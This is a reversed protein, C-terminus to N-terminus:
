WHRRRPRQDTSSPQWEVHLSRSGEMWRGWPKVALRQPLLWLWDGTRLGTDSWGSFTPEDNFYFELKAGKSTCYLYKSALEQIGRNTVCFDYLIRECLPSLTSSERMIELEELQMKSSYQESWKHHFADAARPRRKSLWKPM